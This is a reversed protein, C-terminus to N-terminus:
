SFSAPHEGLDIYNFSVHDIDDRDGDVLVRGDVARVFQNNAARMKWGGDGDLAVRFTEWEGAYDSDAVLWYGFWHTCRVFKGNSALLAVKDGGLNILALAERLGLEKGDSSILGNENVYLYTGDKVGFAVDRVSGFDPEDTPEQAHVAAMCLLPLLSCACCMKIIFKYIDRVTMGRTQYKLALVNNVRVESEYWRVRNELLM